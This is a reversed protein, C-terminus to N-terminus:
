ALLSATLTKLFFLYFIWFTILSINKTSKEILTLYNSILNKDCGFFRAVEEKGDVCIITELVVFWL